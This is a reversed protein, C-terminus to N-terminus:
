RPAEGAASGARWRQILEVRSGAGLKRAASKLYGAVTSMGVGMECAIMKNSHGQAAHACAQKERESLEAPGSAQAENVRAVVFRRGDADVQDVLTWRGSVVARWADLAEHPKKRFRSRAQDIARTASRLADRADRASASREAHLLSGSPSLVAE